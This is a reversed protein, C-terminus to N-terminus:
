SHRKPSAAKRKGGGRGEMHTRSRKQSYSPRRGGPENSKSPKKALVEHSRPGQNVSGHMSISADIPESFGQHRLRRSPNGGRFTERMAPANAKQDSNDNRPNTTYRIGGVGKLGMKGVTKKEMEPVEGSQMGKLAFNNAMGVLDVANIQMKNIFVKMFGLYASYAKQKSKPEISQLIKTMANVSSSDNLIKESAPYSEIPFQHNVTLFFSEAQTLLIIARGDKGARATRGVRHTYSDANLPLGVQLVISVDPFDM